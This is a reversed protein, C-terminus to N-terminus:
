AGAEGRSVAVALETLARVGVGTPGKPAYPKADDNWATGAIDLHAWPLDGAFEGVFLAATIAGGYRGGVNVTDAIESKLLERYDDFVPMAWCRDGAEDATRRIQEVWRDPRGFVGTTSKGLAVACAGTLTAIDVLHTAGLRQAYWLADGLILRGEADTDIVEVTRGSAGRLVDGPKLARGSPMNEVSPIVGVVHLPVELLAIARLAAIVAAGGAMDDKMREMNAAPKISIGGSDFTVGKGVLGLVPRAPANAPRHEIVIVRPPEHSGQAVGMVLGMGLEEIQSVDLVRVRLGTGEAAQTAREALVRPPLLNAPENVLQRALNVQEGLLRGRRAATEAPPVEDGGAGPCVVTAEVGAQGEAPQTKYRGADFEGLTFGESWAEIWAAASADGPVRHVLALSGGGRGRAFMVAAAGLRRCTERNFEIAPGAGLLVLRTGTVGDGPALLLTEFRKGSFGSDARGRAVEAELRDDRHSPAIPDDEFVPVALWRAAVDHPKESSIRCTKTPTSM